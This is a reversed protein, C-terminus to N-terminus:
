RVEEDTKSGRIQAIQQKLEDIRKSDIVERYRDRYQSDVYMKNKEFELKLNKIKATDEPTDVYLDQDIRIGQKRLKLQQRAKLSKYNRQIMIAAQERKKNLIYLVDQTDLKSIFDYERRM